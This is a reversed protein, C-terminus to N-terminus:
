ELRALDSTKLLDLRALLPEAARRFAPLEIELLPQAPQFTMTLPNRNQDHYRFEYHLHPGTAWGTQGVHGITEGQQVRTGAKLERAFDRLHAYYTSYGGHHKLVILNGYGSRRGAFAVVGDGTAKVKTGAPAGYDVGQHARWQQLIPHRRIGFGSTVRSFELPSRLFVKRLNEGDSTYYGGRGSSDQFWVARYTQRRTSFEAALVRASRVARGDFNFTEFIVAFRDGRRLDRHFDVDGGFIDALQVAVGDPIGAADTAAFLSTEIEGSKMQVGRTLEVRQEFPQFSEGIRDISLVTDRDTLYWLSRLRGSQDVKAQVMTGPSLLRFPRMARPSSRITEADEESAGLRELLAALTEKRGSVGERFYISLGIEGIPRPSVALPEVIASLEVSDPERQVTGFAAVVGFLPAAIALALWRLRAEGSRAVIGDNDTNDM